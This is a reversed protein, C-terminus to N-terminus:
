IPIILYNTIPKCTVSLSHDSVGGLLINVCKPGTINMKTPDMHCKKLCHKKDECIVAMNLPNSHILVHQNHTLILLVGNIKYDLKM